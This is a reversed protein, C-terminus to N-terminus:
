EFCYFNLAYKLCSVTLIHYLIHYGSIYQSVPLRLYQEAIDLFMDLDIIREKGYLVKFPLLDSSPLRFDSTTYDQKRSRVESKWSGVELKWSRVESERSGVETKRSRVESKRSGVESKRSGVESKRSGVGSKRSGAESKWSGVESKRSRGFTVPKTLITYTKYKQESM